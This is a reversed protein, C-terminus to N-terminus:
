KIIVKGDTLKATFDTQDSHEMMFDCLADELHHQISRKLSRAGYQADFGKDVLFHKVEDTVHLTYGNQQMRQSLDTLELEAIQLASQKNLPNFMIIDDLRNLFEPAFQKRLTKLIIDEAAEGTIDDTSRNFGLGRGFERLQRTGSNSTLIIITNRFDVTVGNGDTMRGEDMVQLLTNFVDPHAKEIEDLLIVSYPHRRVRETLQGGEEYGVYGPPAGVLRSVSYKEGYESMDVRILADKSGFMWEALCKVLHTKGVGTPGVFLFTGIPRDTGKLGIRSRTIARTLREVAKDQAIVRHNLAERMGHLRTSENASVRTVPVGSMMSVVEAVVTEDVQLPHEKQSKQWEETQKELERTLKQVEDRLNAALEYNQEKAAQLKQERLKEIEHEKEVVFKPTDSGALHMRAGAEDMADIAKDPLARDTIYRSTLDVCAKLAEDTYSVVHHKEYREKINHLIVLSEEQTTPELLIKQFRRDLAGDKEITKKFESTTTAGICQVEGRALAPKLINAADLSGPASGAGIITHIEDIFLVVEPHSKLEKILRRLREEFQGRYQTGAVISAMDLAVIRKNQLLHPVRHHAIRDALGEVIASKGVGPEGIIIPNNKKRRCLIQVIRQIEKDRGVVPDLGGKAAIDTFDTGFNDIIPTDTDSKAPRKETTQRPAKSGQSFDDNPYPLDDENPFNFDNKVKNSDPASEQIKEYTVGNETLVKKAENSRDHLLALLLLEAASKKGQALKDELTLLKIIRTCDEDLAISESDTDMELMSQDNASIETNLISNISSMLSKKSVGIKKLLAVIYESELISLLLCLSNVHLLNYQQAILKSRNIIQTTGAPIEYSMILKTQM